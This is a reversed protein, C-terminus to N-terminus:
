SEAEAVVFFDFGDSTTVSPSELLSPLPPSAVFSPLAPFFFTLSGLPLASFDALVVPTGFAEM